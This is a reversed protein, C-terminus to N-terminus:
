YCCTFTLSFLILGEKGKHDRGLSAFNQKLSGADIKRPFSDIKGLDRFFM